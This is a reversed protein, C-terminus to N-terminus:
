AGEEGAEGLDLGFKDRPLRGHFDGITAQLPM